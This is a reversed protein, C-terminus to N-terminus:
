QSPRMNRYKRIIKLYDIGKGDDIVTFVRRCGTKTIPITKIISSGADVISDVALSYLEERRCGGFIGFITAVQLNLVYLIHIVADKTMGVKTPLYDDDCADRLFTNIQDRTFSKAQKPTYGSSNRKM